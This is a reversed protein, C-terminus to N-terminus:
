DNEYVKQIDACAQAPTKTGAMIAQVNDNVAAAAAPSLDQDLYLQFFTCEDLLTKVMKMNPQAALGSEAGKVTPVCFGLEAAKANNEKNVMFQVFEVAEPSADKGLCYGDGGGIVETVKGKGGKIAPFAACGLADGIGQGSTSQDRQSDASWQGGLEMAVQANGLLAQMNDHSAGLFGDQFAGMKVLDVLMEGAKLFAPDNFGKGKGEAINAFPESGGIRLALYSWIHMAPWKDGAGVSLPTIGAAKLKKILNLFDDYDTPFSNYGVKKLLDKNYWFTVCGANYPVGYYKGDVMYPAWTGAGISNGFATNNCASSIDLLQGARAYAAHTGGGWSSFVDYPTGSQIMTSIKSKEAENELTTMEIKVNPHAAEFEAIIAKNYETRTASTDHNCWTVVVKGDAGKKADKGGGAFVMSTAVVVLAAVVLIKKM